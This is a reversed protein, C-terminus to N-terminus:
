YNLFLPILIYPFLSNRLAKAEEGSLKSTGAFLLHETIHTFELEKKNEFFSGRHLTLFFYTQQKLPPSITLM